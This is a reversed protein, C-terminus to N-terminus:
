ILYFRTHKSFTVKILGKLFIDFETEKEKKSNHYKIFLQNYVQRFSSCFNQNDQSDLISLLTKNYFFLHVLLTQEFPNSLIEFISVKILLQKNPM